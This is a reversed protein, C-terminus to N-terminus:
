ICFFYLKLASRYGALALILGLLPRKHMPSIQHLECLISRGLYISACFAALFKVTVSGFCPQRSTFLPRFIRMWGIM